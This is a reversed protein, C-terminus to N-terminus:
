IQDRRRRLVLLSVGGMIAALLAIWPALVAVKNLPSSELGVTMPNGPGGPDTIIGNAVGDLDGSGGDTLQIVMINDGNDSLNPLSYWQGNHYKWWLTGVPVPGPLTITVTVTQGPALGMIKFSFMGYPFSVSPLSPPMVGVLDEIGGPSAEFSATGTGVAPATTDSGRLIPVLVSGPGVSSGSIFPFGLVECQLQGSFVEVNNVPPDNVFPRYTGSPLVRLTVTGDGHDVIDGALITQHWGTLTWQITPVSTAKMGDYEYVTLGGAINFNLVYCEPDSFNVLWTNALTGDTHDPPFAPDAAFFYTNINAIDSDLIGAQYELNIQFPDAISWGAVGAYVTTWAGLTLASSPVYFTEDRITAAGDWASVPSSGVALASLVLALAFLISLTKRM